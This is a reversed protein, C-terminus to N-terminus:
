SGARLPSASSCASRSCSRRDSPSVEVSRLERVEIHAGVRVLLPHEVRERQFPLTVAPVAVEHDRRGPGALGHNGREVVLLQERLRALIERQQEDGM